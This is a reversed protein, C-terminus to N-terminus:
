NKLKCYDQIRLKEWIWDTTSNVLLNLASSDHISLLLQNTLSCHNRNSCIMLQITSSLRQYGMCVKEDYYSMDTWQECAASYDEAIWVHNQVITYSYWM